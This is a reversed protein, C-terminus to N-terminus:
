RIAARLAQAFKSIGPGIEDPLTRAYTLRVYGSESGYVSGPVFVVGRKMGEELLRGDDVPRKIKCWLHLGGQPLTYSVEGPLDRQLADILLNRKHSLEQRLRLLHRDFHASSLLQAAIRQPLVSLGFDMQQREDTLRNVVSQPAVMWGIRLGSAVIKSLSGIYLVTSNADISKLSPPPTGAFSTLSFPDDEVVPIGLHGCIDLLRERRSPDLVRGTPNHYNPNVFIMRINHERYLSLIGEPCVGKEDVPLRFLRLGASHFMPLSYYYSPDEIAVADGPSLLRQTILYLSQHSGSTVLISSETARIGRYQQLYSALAQRLPVYGQPNDYGLDEHLPHESLLLRIAENPSLDPSLEGSAFDILRRGSDLEERIARLYSQNPQMVTGGELYQLWDPTQKPADGWKYKSVRTGSGVMSEIMGSARLEEYAQVVTSRNVNIQEAFKRESPLISGPPFEGYFIRREMYAAIQQYLPQKSSRDPQWM